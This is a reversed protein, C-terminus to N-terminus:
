AAAGALGVPWRDVSVVQGRFGTTATVEYQVRGNHERLVGSSPEPETTTRIEVWPAHRVASRKPFPPVADVAVYAELTAVFSEWFDSELAERTNGCGVAGPLEAVRLLTDGEPTDERVVTWPQRILFEVKQKPTWSM